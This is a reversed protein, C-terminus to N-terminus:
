AGVYQCLKECHVVSSYISIMIVLPFQQTMLIMMVASSADGFASWIKKRSKTIGFSMKSM